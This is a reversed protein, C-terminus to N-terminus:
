RRRNRRLRSLSQPTIGLYSAIMKQPISQEIGPHSQVLKLYRYWASIHMNDYNRRRAYVNYQLAVNRAFIETAPYRTLCEALDYYSLSTLTTGSTANIFLQAPKRHFFSESDTIIAHKSWICHVIEEKTEPAVSYGCAFGKDLFYIYDARHGASLIVQEKSYHTTRLLPAVFQRLEEIFDKDSLKDPLPGYSLLIDFLEHVNM